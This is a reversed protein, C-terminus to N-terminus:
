RKRCSWLGRIFACLLAVCIIFTTLIEFKAGREILQPYNGLDSYILQNTTNLSFNDLSTVDYTYASSYGSNTNFEYCMVTDNSVFDNNEYSIDGVILTYTYQGSRFAVYNDNFGIGSVIDRFYQIYATSLNGSEYISHTYAQTVTAFGCTIVLLIVCVRIIKWVM